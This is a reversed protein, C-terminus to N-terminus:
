SQASSSDASARGLSEVIRHCVNYRRSLSVLREHLMRLQQPITLDSEGDKIQQSPPVGTWEAISTSASKPMSSKM